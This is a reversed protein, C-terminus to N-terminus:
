DVKADSKSGHGIQHIRGALMECLNEDKALEDMLQARKFEAICTDFHGRAALRIGNREYVAKTANAADVVIDFLSANTNINTGPM